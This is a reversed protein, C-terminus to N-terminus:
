ALVASVRELYETMQFPKRIFRDPHLLALTAIEPDGVDGTVFLFRDLLDPRRAEVWRYLMLGSGGPMKVDSIVLDVPSSELLACAEEGGEALLVEAGLRGLLRKQLTRLPAEDEVVLVRLSSGGGRGAGAEAAEGTEAAATAEAAETAAVAAVAKAAETPEPIADAPPAAAAHFSLTCRAGGGPANEAYIHGGFEEMFRHVLALGLGTGEGVPKTTYFPEFVRDADAFGPGDDQVVVVVRGGSRHARIAVHGRGRPRLADFANNVINLLVQQLRQSEARVWLPPTPEVELRLGAQEFAYSRLGTVVRLSDDLSVPGLQVDPKRAFRLLNQVLERARGAEGVIPAVYGAGIEAPPLDGDELRAHLLEAYGLVSALPNNLEHALGAVMRGMASLKETQVLEAQTDRLRDLARALEENRNQLDARTAALGDAMQNFSVAVAALEDDRPVRVRADLDGSGIRSAAGALDALPTALRHYLFHSMAFATALVLLGFVAAALYLLRFADRQKARLEELDSRRMAIFTQTAAGLALAHSAMSEGAERAAAADGLELLEISRAAAVELRQHREKVEELQLRQGSSLDRFLYSRLQEYTEDGAVRFERKLAEAPRHQYASAALLQRTVGNIIRDAMWQEEVFAQTADGLTERMRDNVWFLAAATVLIAATQAAGLLLLTRGLSGRLPATARRVRRKM